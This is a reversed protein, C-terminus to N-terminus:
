ALSTDLAHAGPGDVRSNTTAFASPFSGISAVEGSSATYRTPYGDPADGYDAAPADVGPTSDPNGPNDEPPCGTNGMLMAVTALAAAHRAFRNLTDIEM